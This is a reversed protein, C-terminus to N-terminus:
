IFAFRGSYRVSSSLKLLAIDNYQSKRNPNYDDHVIIEEIPINQTAPSCVNNDCDVTKSM